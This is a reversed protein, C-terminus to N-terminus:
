LPLYNQVIFVNMKIDDIFVNHKYYDLYTEVLLM